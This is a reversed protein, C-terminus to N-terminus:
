ESWATWTGGAGDSIAYPARQQGPDALVVKGNAVLQPAGASNLRQVYPEPDRGRYDIWTAIAGGAGDTSIAVPGQDEPATTIVAGNATWQPAGAGNLKQAYLDRSTGSREDEWLLTIGGGAEVFADEIFRSGAESCVTVGGSTWQQAGASNVRQARLQDGVVIDRWTVYAGDALDPWALIEDGFGAITGVAV